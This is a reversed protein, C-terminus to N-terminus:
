TTAELQALLEQLLAANDGSGHEIVFEAMVRFLEPPYRDTQQPLARELVSMDAHASDRRGFFSPLYWCNIMRLYRIELDQPDAAVAADLLALARRVARLRAHPWFGHKAELATFAGEYAALLHQRRAALRPEDARLQEITAHGLRIAREDEVGVFFLARVLDLRPITDAATRLPLEAPAPHMSRDTQAALSGAGLAAAILLLLAATRAPRRARASPQRPLAGQALLPHDYLARLALRLKTRGHTHARHTLNDYNSSRVEDHIGRYVHAAIRVAYRFRIPLAPTAALAREYHEDARRMLQELVDRYAPPMAAGGAALAHLEHLDIGAAAVMDAPIYVRGLRLDEGADRIINTLQLAHGLDAARELVAEDRVGALRTLWQGIVGAVRYSYVRLAPLSAYREGRLDMRMGEILEEVLAFPVGAAAADGMVRQLLDIGSDGGRYATHALARWLELRRMRVEVADDAGTGPSDAIDDTVRCFAYVATVRARLEAPFLRAAFSFTRSHTSFFAALRAADPVLAALEARTTRAALATEVCVVAARAREVWTGVLTSVVVDRPMCSAIAARVSETEREFRALCRRLPSSGRADPTALRVAVAASDDDFGASDLELLPWTWRRQRYDALPPKGTDADPCYDLLDDLMQYLEGVRRGLVYLSASAPHGCAYAGASLACGLLEGSKGAIIRRYANEDLELGLARGQLKEGAVTREVAHAFAAVFAPSESAAALRYSTTLLHDGEVLAAAVGRAAVLTPAARRQAAEDIVDDHLLSAEHALQVAAAASWFRADTDLQLAEAGALSLLPRILQGDAGPPAALGRARLAAYLSQLAERAAATREALLGASM